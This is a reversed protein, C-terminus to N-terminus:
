KKSLRYKVPSLTSNGEFIQDGYITYKVPSFTSNGEYIKNGYITYKVFLQIEKMYKIEM